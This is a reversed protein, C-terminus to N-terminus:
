IGCVEEMIGMYTKAGCTFYFPKGQEREAKSASSALQLNKKSAATSTSAKKWHFTKEERGNANNVYYPHYCSDPFLIEIQSLTIFIVHAQTSFNFASQLHLAIQHQVQGDGFDGVFQQLTRLQRQRRQWIEV